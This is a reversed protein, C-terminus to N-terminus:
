TVALALERVLHVLREAHIRELREAGLQGPPEARELERCSGLLIRDAAFEIGQM